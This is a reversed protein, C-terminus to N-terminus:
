LLANSVPIHNGHQPQSPSSYMQLIKLILLALTQTLTQTHPFQREANSPMPGPSHVPTSEVSRRMQQRKWIVGPLSCCGCDVHSHTKALGEMAAVAGDAGCRRLLM